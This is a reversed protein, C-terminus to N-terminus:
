GAVVEAIQAVDEHIDDVAEAAEKVTATTNKAALASSMAGFHTAFNAWLSVELILLQVFGSLSHPWLPIVLGVMSMFWVIAWFRNFKYQSDADHELLQIDRFLIMMVPTAKLKQKM